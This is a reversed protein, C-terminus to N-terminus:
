AFSAKPAHTILRFEDAEVIGVDEIRVGGWGPVYLGPEVTTVEGGAFTDSAGETMTPLEHVYLGVGHSLGHILYESLGADAVAARAAADPVQWAVGTRIAAFAASQAAEVAAYIERLRPSPDGVWITRTLDGHYGDLMAGMDIVVPEGTEIQRDTPDHHPRAANPGAAVITPFSPGQSGRAELETDIRRALERETTGATLGQTAATFAEDGIRAIREFLAHESADKVRRLYSIAPGIPVLEAAGDLEAVVERHLAVTIAGDEFGARSWGRAKIENAIARSWPRDWGEVAFDHPEAETKAWDLNTRGTLLRAVDPDIFCAGVVTDPL